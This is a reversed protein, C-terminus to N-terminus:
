KWSVGSAQVTGCDKLVCFKTNAHSTALREAEARASAETNHFKPSASPRLKGDEIAIALFKGTTSVQTNMVTQPIELYENIRTKSITFRNADITTLTVYLDDGKKTWQLVRPVSSRKTSYVQGTETDFYYGAFAASLFGCKAM